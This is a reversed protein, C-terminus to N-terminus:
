QRVTEGIKMVAPASRAFYSHTQWRVSLAPKFGFAAPLHNADNSRPKGGTEEVPTALSNQPALAIGFLQEELVRRLTPGNPLKLTEGAFAFVRARAEQLLRPYVPLGDDDTGFRAWAAAWDDIFREVEELARLVDTDFDARERFFALHCRMEWPSMVRPINTREFMLGEGARKVSPLIRPEGTTDAAASMLDSLIGGGVTDLVLHIRRRAGRNKVSHWRFSDFVWCEGHDMHVTEEGCSFSVDPNTVIPIHIRLHSRWYYSLDIHRPVECRAAIAMLRCRGWVAGIEAMAKKITDCADLYQTPAMPGLIEDTARGYPTVLRVAKNGPYGAPHSTWASSPLAAVQGAIAGADFGIPLKLFPRNLRM